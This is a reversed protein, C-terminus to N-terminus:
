FEHKEENLDFKIQTQWRPASSLDFQGAHIPIPAAVIHVAPELNAPCMSQQHSMAEFISEGWM